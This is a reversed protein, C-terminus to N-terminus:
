YRPTYAGYPLIISSTTSIKFSTGPPELLFQSSAVSGASHEPESM